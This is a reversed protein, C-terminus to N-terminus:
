TSFTAVSFQFPNIGVPFKNKIQCIIFETELRRSIESSACYGDYLKYLMQLVISSPIRKPIVFPQKPYTIPLYILMVYVPSVDGTLIFRLYLQMERFSCESRYSLSSIRLYSIADNLRSIIVGGYKEPGTWFLVLHTSTENQKILLRDWKKKVLDRFIYRILRITDM